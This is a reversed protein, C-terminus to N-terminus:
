IVNNVQVLAFEAGLKGTADIFWVVYLVNM